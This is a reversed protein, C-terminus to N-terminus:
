QPRFQRLVTRCFKVLDKRVEVYMEVPFAEGEPKGALYRRISESYTLFYNTGINIKTIGNAIAQRVADEPTDSGGHMVLPVDVAARIEKLRAIDLKPTRKYKGHATGIAVALADVGTEEAFRKAVAPDTLLTSMEEDSPMDKGTPMVGIEGEVSVGVAHAMEVVQKTIAINQELPLHSGDIMVSSFGARIAQVIYAINPSHDLHVAVPVRANEAAIRAVAGYYDASIYKDFFGCYVAVIVPTNEEEGAQVVAQITELNTVNFAPIAYHQHQAEKLMEKMTVLM